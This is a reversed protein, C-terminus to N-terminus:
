GTAASAIIVTRLPLSSGAQYLALTLRDDGPLRLTSTWLGNEDGTLATRSTTTAPGTVQLTYAAGTSLGTANIQVARTGTADAAGPPVVSLTTV